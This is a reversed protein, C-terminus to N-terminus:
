AMITRIDDSVYFQKKMEDRAPLLGKGRKLNPSSRIGKEALLKKVNWIM